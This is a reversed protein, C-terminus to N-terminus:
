RTHTRPVPISSPILPRLLDRPLTTLLINKIQLYRFLEPPLAYKTQLDTFQPIAGSYALKHVTSINLTDWNRLSIPSSWAPYSPNYLELSKGCTQSIHNLNPKLKGQEM